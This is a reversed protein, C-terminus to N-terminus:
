AAAPSPQDPAARLPPTAVVTAKAAGPGPLSTQGRTIAGFQEIQESIRAGIDRCSVAIQHLEGFKTEFAALTEAAARVAARQTQSSNDVARMGDELRAVAEAIRTGHAESQAVARTCDGVQSNSALLIRKIGLATQSTKNSLEHVEHAVIAFGRGAPGARAAEVSANLSLLNTQSSIDEISDIHNVAASSSEAIENVLSVTRSMSQRSDKLLHTIASCTESASQTAELNREVAVETERIRAVIQGVLGSNHSQQEALADSISSFQRIEEQIASSATTLQAVIEAQFGAAQQVATAHSEAEELAQRAEEELRRQSNLADGFRSVLQRLHGLENQSSWDLGAPRTSGAELRELATSLDAIRSVVYRNLLSYTAFAGACLLATAVAVFALAIARSRRANALENAIFSQVLSEATDAQDLFTDFIDDYVADGISRDAAIELSRAHRTRALESLAAIRGAQLDAGARLPEPLTAADLLAIAAAFSDLAEQLDEGDDGGLIEAVLLHGHAIHYRAAGLRHQAGPTGAAPQGAIALLDDAISDYEADFLADAESGVGQGGDLQAFRRSTQELLRDLGALAGEVARRVDPDTAPHFTGEDNQGGNLMADAYFRSAELHEWVEQLAEADDGGMIEETLVHAHLAELKIEMAADVLPGLERGLKQAQTAITLFQWALLGCLVLVLSGAGLACAQVTRRLSANMSM